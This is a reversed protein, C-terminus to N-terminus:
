QYDACDRRERQKWEAYDKENGEQLLAAVVMGAQVCVDVRDGHRVTINYENIAKNTIDHYIGSMLSTTPPSASPTDWMGVWFYAYLHSSESQYRHAADLCLQRTKDGLIYISASEPVKYAEQVLGYLISFIQKIKEDRSMMLVFLKQNVASADTNARSQKMVDIAVEHSLVECIRTPEGSVLAQSLSQLAPSEAIINEARQDAERLSQEVNYKYASYGFIATLVILPLVITRINM